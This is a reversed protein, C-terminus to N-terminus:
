IRCQHTVSRTGQISRQLVHKHAKSRAKKRVSVISHCIRARHDPMSHNIISPRTSNTMRSYPDMSFAINEKNYFVSPRYHSLSTTAFWKLVHDPSLDISPRPSRSCGRSLPTLDRRGAANRDGLGPVSMLIPSSSIRVLSKVTEQILTIDSCATDIASEKCEDFEHLIDDFTALLTSLPEWSSDDVRALDCLIDDGM